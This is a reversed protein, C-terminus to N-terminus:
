KIDRVSHHLGRESRRHRKTKTIHCWGPVYLPNYINKVRLTLAEKFRVAATSVFCNFLIVCISFSSGFCLATIFISFKKHEIIYKNHQNTTTVSTVSYGDCGWAGGVAKRQLIGLGAKILTTARDKELFMSPKLTFICNWDWQNPSKHCM